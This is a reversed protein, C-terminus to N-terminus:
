NAEVIVYGDDSEDFRFPCMDADDQQKIRPINSNSNTVSDGAKKLFEADIVADPINTPPSPFNGKMYNSM